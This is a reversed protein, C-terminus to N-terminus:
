QPRDDPFVRPGPDRPGLMISVLCQEGHDVVESVWIATRAGATARLSERSPLQIFGTLLDKVALERSAVDAADRTIRQSGVAVGGDYEARVEAELAALWAYSEDDSRAACYKLLNRL